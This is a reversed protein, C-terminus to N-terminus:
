VLGSDGLQVVIFNTQQRFHETCITRVIGVECMPQHVSIAQFQDADCASRRTAHHHTAILDDVDWTM